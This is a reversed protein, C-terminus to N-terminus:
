CGTASPDPHTWSHCPTPMVFPNMRPDKFRRTCIYFNPLYNQFSILHWTYTQADVFLQTDRGKDQLWQIWWISSLTFWMWWCSITCLSKFTINGGHWLPQPSCGPSWQILCSLFVRNGAPLPKKWKFQARPNRFCLNAVESNELPHASSRLFKETKMFKALGWGWRPLEM